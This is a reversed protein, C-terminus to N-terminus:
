IALILGTDEGLPLLRREPHGWRVLAEFERRLGLIPPVCARGVAGARAASRKPLGATTLTSRITPVGNAAFRSRGPSVGM